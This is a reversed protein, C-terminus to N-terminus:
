IQCVVFWGVLWALSLQGVSVSGCWVVESTVCWLAIGCFLYAEFWFFGANRRRETFSVGTEEQEGSNTDCLVM